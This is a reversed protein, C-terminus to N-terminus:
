PSERFRTAPPCPVGIDPSRGAVSRYRCWIQEAASSLPKSATRVGVPNHHSSAHNVVAISTSDVSVSFNRTANRGPSNLGVSAECIAPVKWRCECPRSSSFTTM